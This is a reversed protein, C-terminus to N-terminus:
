PCALNGPSPHRSDDNARPFVSIDYNRPPRDASTVLSLGRTLCHASVALIAQPRPLSTGLRAWQATWVNPDIASFPTGHGVFVVPLPPSKPLKALADVAASLSAPAGFATGLGLAGLATLFQRRTEQHNPM